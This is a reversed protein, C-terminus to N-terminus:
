MPSDNESDDQNGGTSEYKPTGYGMIEFYGIPYSNQQCADGSNGEITYVRGNEVKEVIGVHDSSGDQTGDDEVWDFFIIMGSTPTSSGDIWLNRAKFWEIGQGCGSFKPMIGSDIYGCQDACWSVFCACWEVRSGFGYWSWYPEGGVNGLQSRAVDVIQRNVFSMIKEFDDPDIDTGFAANVAAILEANTQGEVFCGALKAAFGPDDAFEALAFVYLVLAEKLRKEQGRSTLEAQIASGTDEMHQLNAQQEPTLNQIALRQFEPVDIEFDTSFIAIVAVIPLIITVLLTLVIGVIKKLTKPDSLLAVAIKKLAAGLAASM